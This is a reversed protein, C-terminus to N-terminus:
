RDILNFETTAAKTGSETCKRAIGILSNWAESKYGSSLSIFSDCNVALASFIVAAHSVEIFRFKSSRNCRCAYTLACEGIGKM